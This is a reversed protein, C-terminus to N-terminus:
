GRTPLDIVVPKNLPRYRVDCISANVYTTAPTVVTGYGEHIHGFVHLRPRRQEVVDKLDACGVHEGSSTRDCIRAPPGHTILVDPKEPIREWKERIEPGRRLNFAMACFWPQWPAGWIRLGEVEFLADELYVANTIEARARAPQTEFAYDHNGAIVIRHAHPLQGLWRNFTAVEELTGTMTLDGAHILLDGPPVDVNRLHTDSICVIRM